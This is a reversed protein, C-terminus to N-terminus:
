YFLFITIFLIITLFISIGNLIIGSINFGNRNKVIGIISLVLGTISILFNSYVYDIVSLIFEIEYGIALEYGIEDIDVFDTVVVLLAVIGLIMGAISIGKGPVKTKEPLSTESKLLKGCKICVDADEKLKSGCYKCYM